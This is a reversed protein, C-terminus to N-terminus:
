SLPKSVLAWVVSLVTGLSLVVYLVWRIRRLEQRFAKANGLVEVLSYDQRPSPM